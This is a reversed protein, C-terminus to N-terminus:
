APLLTLPPSLPGARIVDNGPGGFITDNGQGGIIMDNGYGGDIRTNITVGDASLQDDGYWGKLVIQNVGSTSYSSVAGNDSVTLTSGSQSVSLNNTAQWNEVTLTGSALSVSMLRRSELPEFNM